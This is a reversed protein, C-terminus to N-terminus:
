ATGNEDGQNDEINWFRQMDVLALTEGRARALTEHSQDITGDRALGGWLDALGTAMLAVGNFPYCALAFGARELEALSPIPPTVGGIWVLPTDPFAARFQPALGPDLDLVMLADAGAEVYVACRSLAEDVSKSVRLADTRAVISLQGNRRAAVATRLRMAMADPTILSGQGRHYAARKPYPQDDIHLGAAGAAEMERVAISLHAPEGFGAGADVLVPLDSTATVRAMIQVTETLGIFPQGKGLGLAMANGGLYLARHGAMEAIRATLPDHIGPAATIAGTRWLSTM